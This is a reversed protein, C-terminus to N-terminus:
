KAYKIASALEKEFKEQFIKEIHEQAEKSSMLQMASPGYLEKIPLREKSVRKFVGKHYGKGVTTIFASPISQREGKAITVNVGKRTQKAAGFKVRALAKHSVTLRFKKNSKKAKTVKIENKLDSAKINYRKRIFMVTQALASAGARNLAIIEAKEVVKKHESIIKKMDGILNIRGM